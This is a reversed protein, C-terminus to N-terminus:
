RKRRSLITTGSIFLGITLLLLSISLGEKIVEPQELCITKGNMTVLRQGENCFLRVEATCKEPSDVEKNGCLYKIPATCEEQSSVLKDGCLLRLPVEKVCDDPSSVEVGNCLFKTPVICAGTSDRIGNTCPTIIGNVQVCGKANTDYVEGQELSCIIPSEAVYFVEVARREPVTFSQENELRSLIGDCLRVDSTQCDAWTRKTFEDFVLPPHVRCYKIPNFQLNQRSIIGKAGFAEGILSQGEDLTCPKPVVNIFSTFARSLYCVDSNGLGTNSCHMTAVEVYHNGATLKPESFRQLSSLTPLGNFAFVSDSVSQVWCTDPSFPYTTRIDSPNVVRACPMTMQISRIRDEFIRGDVFIIYGFYNSAPNNLSFGLSDDEIINMSNTTSSYIRAQPTALYEPFIAGQPPVIALPLSIAKVLFLFSIFGLLLLIIGIATSKKDSM